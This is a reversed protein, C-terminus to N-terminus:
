YLNEIKKCYLSNEIEDRIYENLESDSTILLDDICNCVIQKVDGHDINYKTAYKEAIENIVEKVM